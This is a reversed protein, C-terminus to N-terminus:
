VKHWFSDLRATTGVSPTFRDARYLVIPAVLSSDLRYSFYPALGAGPPSLPRLLAFAGHALALCHSFHASSDMAPTFWYGLWRVTHRPRILEEKILTPSLCM